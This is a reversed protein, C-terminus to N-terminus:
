IVLDECISHYIWFICFIPLVLQHRREPWPWEFDFILYTSNLCVLCFIVGGSAHTKATRLRHSKTCIPELEIFATTHLLLFYCHAEHYCDNAIKTSNANLMQITVHKNLAESITVSREVVLGFVNSGLQFSYKMCSTVLAFFIPNVTNWSAAIGGSSKTALQVIGNSSRACRLLSCCSKQTHIFM